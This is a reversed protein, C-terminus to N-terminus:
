NWFLIGFCYGFCYELIFQLNEKFNEEGEVWRVEAVKALHSSCRGWDGGIEGLKGRWEVMGTSEATKLENREIGAGARKSSQRKEETQKRQEGFKAEIEM